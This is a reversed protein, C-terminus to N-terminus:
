CLSGLREADPQAGALPHLPCPVPSHLLQPLVHQLASQFLIAGCLPRAHSLARMGGRAGVGLGGLRGVQEMGVLRPLRQTGGLGPLLGLRVEPLGLQAGASPALAAADKCLRVAKCAQYFPRAGAMRCGWGTAGGPMEGQAVVRANCAMAVECGGGLCAGEVAAVTPKTGSELLAGMEKLAEERGDLIASM